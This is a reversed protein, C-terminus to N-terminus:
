LTKRKKKKCNIQQYFQTTRYSRVIQITSIADMHYLDIKQKNGVNGTFQYNSRLVQDSKPKM